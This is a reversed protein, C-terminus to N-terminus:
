HLNLVTRSLFSSIPLTNPKPKKTPNKQQQHNKLWSSFSGGRKLIDEHAITGAQPFHREKKGAKAKPLYLPKHVECYIGPAVLLYQGHSSSVSLMQIM